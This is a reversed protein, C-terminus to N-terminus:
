NPESYPWTATITFVAFFGLTGYFVAFKTVLQTCILMELLKIEVIPYEWGLTIEKDPSSYCVRASIVFNRPTMHYYFITVKRLENRNRWFM